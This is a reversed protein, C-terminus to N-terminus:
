FGLSGSIVGLLHTLSSILQSTSLLGEISGM